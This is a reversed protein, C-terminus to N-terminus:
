DLLDHTCKARDAILPEVHDNADLLYWQSLSARSYGLTDLASATGQERVTGHTQKLIYIYSSLEETMLLLFPGNFFVKNVTNSACPWSADNVKHPSAMAASASFHIESEM